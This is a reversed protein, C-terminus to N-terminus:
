ALARPQTLFRVGILRGCRWAVQCVVRTRRRHNNLIFRDPVDSSGAELMAGNQSINHVMCAIAYRGGDVLIESIDAAPERRSSRRDAAGPLAAASAAHAIHATTQLAPELFIRHPAYRWCLFSVLPFYTESHIVM